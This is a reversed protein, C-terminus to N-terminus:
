TQPLQRCRLLESLGSGAMSGAPHLLAEAPSSSDPSQPTNASSMAVQLYLFIAYDTGLFDRQAPFMPTVCGSNVTALIRSRSGNPDAGHLNLRINARISSICSLAVPCESSATKRTEGQRSELRSPLKRALSVLFRRSPRKWSGSSLVPVFFPRGLFSGAPQKTLQTAAHCALCTMDDGSAINLYGFEGAGEAVDLDSKQAGTNSLPCLPAGIPVKGLKASGLACDEKRSAEKVYQLRWM